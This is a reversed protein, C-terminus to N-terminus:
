LPGSIGGPPNLRAWLSPALEYDSLTMGDSSNLVYFEKRADYRVVWAGDNAWVLIPEESPLVTEIPPWNIM